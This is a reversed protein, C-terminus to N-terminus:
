DQNVLSDNTAKLPQIVGDKGFRALVFDDANLADHHEPRFPLDYDRIVGKYQGLEEMADRVLPRDLSNAKKVAAALMMVIEYGHATGAPSFVDRPNICDKFRAKYAEFLQNSRKPHRPQIFSHTQLFSLDVQTLYDKALDAFDGGTIGWHSIIPIRKAQPRSAMSKLTVVGELPNCVLLVCEAGGEALRNIQASFDTEGLNFWEVVGPEAGRAKLANQIALENSRGWGTQELLLGVKKLDRDFARDVLFGGAYEDRVSVRYVYNPSYGNKVVPTGEAWPGLYSMKNEHITELERLAVPTHLGGVVALVDPMGSFEVIHDVGRDPNGRHDRVVIEVPRGLLGGDSNIEEIALEVGRKIAEGSQASGSSMDTDLGIILSNEIQRQDNFKHIENEVALATDIVSTIKEPATPPNAAVPQQSNTCGVNCLIILLVGAILSTLDVGTESKNSFTMTSVSTFKEYQFVPGRLAGIFDTLEFAISSARHLELITKSFNM